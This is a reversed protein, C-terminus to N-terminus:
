VSDFNLRALTKAGKWYGAVQCTKPIHGTEGARLQFCNFAIVHLHYRLVIHSWHAM